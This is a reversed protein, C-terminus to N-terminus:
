NWVKVLAKINVFQERSILWLLNPRRSISSSGIRNWENWMRRKRYLSDLMTKLSIDNWEYKWKLVRRCSCIILRMDAKLLQGKCSKNCKIFSWETITIFLQFQKEAPLLTFLIPSSLIYHYGYAAKILLWKGNM